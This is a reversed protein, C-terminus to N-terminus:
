RSNKKEKKALKKEKPTKTPLKKTEKKADKTKMPKQPQISLALDAPLVSTESMPDRFTCARSFGAISQKHRV